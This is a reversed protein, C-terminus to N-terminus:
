KSLFGTEHIEYIDSDGYTKVFNLCKNKNLYENRLNDNVVALCICSRSPNNYSAYTNRPLCIDICLQLNSVNGYTESIKFTYMNKDYDPFISDGDFNEIFNALDEKLVCCLFFKSKVRVEISSELNIVDTNAFPCKRKLSSKYLIDISYDNKLMEEHKLSKVLLDRIKNKCEISKARNYASLALPYNELNLNESIKQNCKSGNINGFIAFLLILSKIKM